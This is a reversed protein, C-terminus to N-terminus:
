EDKKSNGMTLMPVISIHVSYGCHTGDVRTIVSPTGLVHITYADGDLEISANICEEIRGAKSALRAIIARLINGATDQGDETGPIPASITTSFSHDGYTFFSRSDGNDM